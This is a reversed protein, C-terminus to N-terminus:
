TAFPSPPGFSFGPPRPSMTYTDTPHLATSVQPWSEMGLETSAATSLHDGLQLYLLDMSMM